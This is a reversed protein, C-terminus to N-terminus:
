MFLMAKYHGGHFVDAAHRLCLRVYGSLTPIGKSTVNAASALLVQPVVWWLVCLSFITFTGGVDTLSIRVFGRIAGIPNKSNQCNQCITMRAQAKPLLRWGADEVWRELILTARLDFTM